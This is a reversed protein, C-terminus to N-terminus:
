GGVLTAEILTELPQDILGKGVLHVETSLIDASTVEDSPQRGFLLLTDTELHVFTRRKSEGIVYESFGLSVLLNFLTRYTAKDRSM